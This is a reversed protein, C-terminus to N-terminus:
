RIVVPAPHIVNGEEDRLAVTVSDRDWLVMIMRHEGQLFRKLDSRSFGRTKVAQGDAGARYPHTHWTGLFNVVHDCSGGVGFQLQVLDQAQIWRHVHVTDEEVHGQLCGMYELQTTRGSGPTRFPSMTPPADEWHRNNELFRENMSDLVARPLVVVPPVDAEDVGDEHSPQSAALREPALQSAVALLVGLLLSGGRAPRRRAPVPNRTRM